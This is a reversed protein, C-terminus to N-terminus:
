FIIETFEDFFRYFLVLPILLLFWTFSVYCLRHYADLSLNVICLNYSLIFLSYPSLENYQFGVSHRPIIHFSFLRCLIAYIRSHMTTATTTRGSKKKYYTYM